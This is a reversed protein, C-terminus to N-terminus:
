KEALIPSCGALVDHQPINQFSFFIRGLDPYLSYIFNQVNSPCFIFYSYLRHLSRYRYKLGPVNDSPVALVSGVIVLLTLAFDGM